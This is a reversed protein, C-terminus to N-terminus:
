SKGNRLYDEFVDAVRVVAPATCEGNNWRIALELAAKRLEFPTYDPIVMIPTNYPKPPFTNNESSRMSEAKAYAERKTRGTVMTDLVEAALPKRPQPDDMFAVM